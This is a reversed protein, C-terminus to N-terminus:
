SPDDIKKTTRSLNADIWEESRSSGFSELDVGAASVEGERRPDAGADFELFEMFLEANQASRFRWAKAGAATAAVVFRRWGLEYGSWTAEPVRREVALLTRSAMM